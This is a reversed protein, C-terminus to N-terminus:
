GNWGRDEGYLLSRVENLERAWGRDPQHNKLFELFAKGNPRSVPLIRAVPRGNRRVTFSEGRHEVEDLLESFRRAAQTATLDKM